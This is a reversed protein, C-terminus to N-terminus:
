TSGGVIKVTGGYEEATDEGNGSLVNNWCHLTYRQSKIGVDNGVIACNCVTCEPYGGDRDESTVAYVGVGNDHTYVGDISNRSGFTPSCVGGKGNNYYEGGIVLGGSETHHSIGDDGNDHSICDIFDATSVGHINFGDTRNFSAQCNRVVASSNELALGNYVGSHSFACRSIEADTCGKLRVADERAHRVTIGMLKVKGLYEMYIGQKAAGDALIYTGAAGNVYVYTGDYTWTGEAAQCDAVTLVPTLKTDGSWLNCAYGDTIFSDDYILTESQDVFAKHIFDDATSASGARALGTTSDETFELETGLDIIVDKNTNSLPKALIELEAGPRSVSISEKYTGALVFITKAGSAVAKGITRFPKGNEGSDSDSGDTSVYVTDLREAQPYVVGDVSWKGPISNANVSTPYGKSLVAILIHDSWFKTPDISKVQSDATDYVLLSISSTTDRPIDNTATVQKRGSRSYIFGASVSITDAVTDVSLVTDSFCVFPGVNNSKKEVVSVRTDMEGSGGVTQWVGITDAAGAGTCVYKDGTGLDTYEDGVRSHYLLPDAPEGMGYARSGYGGHEMYRITDDGSGVCLIKTDRAVPFPLEVGAGRWYRSYVHFSDTVEAAIGVPAKFRYQYDTGYEGDFWAVVEEFSGGLDFRLDEVKVAGITGILKGDFHVGYDRNCRGIRCDLVQLESLAYPQDEASEQISCIGYNVGDLYCRRFICPDWAVETGLVCAAHRSKLRIGPHYTYGYPCSIYTDAVTVGGDGVAIGCTVSGNYDSTNVIHCGEVMGHGFQFEVAGLWFAGSFRCDRIVTGYAASKVGRKKCDIFSCGEIAIKQDTGLLVEGAEDWYPHRQIFIGDGDAKTSGQDTGAVNQFLCGSVTGTRSYSNDSGARNVFLGYAHIFKDSGVQGATIDRFTCRDVLFGSCDGVIHSGATSAMDANGLGDFSVQELVANKCTHLEVGHFSGGIEVSGGTITGGQLKLHDCRQAKLFYAGACQVTAGGLYFTVHDLDAMDFPAVTYAAPLFYVTSGSTIGYGSLDLPAEASGTETVIIEGKKLPQWKIAGTASADDYAFYIDGNKVACIYLTYWATDGAGIVVLTSQKATQYPLDAYWDPHDNYPFRYIRGPPLDRISGWGQDTVNAATLTFDIPRLSERFEELEKDFGELAANVDAMTKYEFYDNSIGQGAAPNRAVDVTVPFAAIQDLTDPDQIVVTVKTKGAATLVEPALVATVVNGSYSCADSEDPLKDYWGGHGDSKRFAVSVNKGEPVEWAVDGCLLTLELVRTNADLQVADVCPIYRRDDMHVTLKHTVKM